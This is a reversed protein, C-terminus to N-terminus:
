LSDSYDYATAAAAGITNSLSTMADDFLGAAEPHEMLYPFAPKGFTRVFACEGTMVSHDLNGQAMWHETDCMMHAVARMSQPHDTRLFESIDTNLFRGEADRKLVGSQSLARLLRFVSQAHAGTEEAIEDATKAGGALLDPIRLKAAVSIAQSVIFGFLMQILVAQPPMAQKEPTPASM